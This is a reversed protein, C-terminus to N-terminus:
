WTKGVFDQQRPLIGNAHQATYDIWLCFRNTEPNIKKTITHIRVRLGTDIIIDQEPNFVPMTM